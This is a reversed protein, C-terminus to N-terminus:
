PLAKGADSASAKIEFAISWNHLPYPKNVLAEINAEPPMGEDPLYEYRADAVTPDSDRLEGAGGVAHSAYRIRPTGVM